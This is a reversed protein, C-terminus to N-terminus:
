HDLLLLLMSIQSVYMMFHKDCYTQACGVDQTSVFNFLADIEKKQQYTINELLIEVGKM